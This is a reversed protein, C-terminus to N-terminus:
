IDFSLECREKKLKPLERILDINKTKATFNVETQLKFERRIMAETFRRVDEMNELLLRPVQRLRGLEDKAVLNFYTTNTHKLVGTKINEAEVKVGVVLSTNGVYNVSAMLTVIEGVEIPHFFSVEDVSVTVCYGGTHKAACATAAKDMLSLLIGGHIRGEFNSYSPIMLETIITKSYSVPKSPLEIMLQKLTLTSILNISGWM